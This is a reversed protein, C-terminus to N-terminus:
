GFRQNTAERLTLGILDEADTATETRWDLEFSNRVQEGLCCVVHDLNPSKAVEHSLIRATRPSYVPLVCARTSLLGIAETSLSCRIQRYIVHSTIRAGRERLSSEIDVAFHEGRLWVLPKNLMSDAIRDILSSANGGATFTQYGRRRAVTATRKGICWAQTEIPPTPAAVVANESSFVVLQGPKFDMPSGTPQIELLPSVVVQFQNSVLEQLKAVTRLAAGQPRTIIIPRRLSNKNDTM